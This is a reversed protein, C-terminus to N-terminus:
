PARADQAVLVDEGDLHRAVRLPADAAAAVDGADELVGVGDVSRPVGTAQPSGHEHVVGPRGLEISQADQATVGVLDTGVEPQIGAEVAVRRPRDAHARGRRSHEDALGLVRDGGAVVLDLPRQVDIPRSSHHGRASPSWGSVFMSTSSSTSPSTLSRRDRRVPRRSTAQFSQTQEILPSRSNRLAALMTGVRGPGRRRSARPLQAAVDLQRDLRAQVGHAHLGVDGMGLQVAGGVLQAHEHQLVERQLPTVGVLDAALGDPLDALRDVGSPCWGDITCHHACSSGTASAGCISCSLVPRHSRRSTELCSGVQFLDTSSRQSFRANSCASGVRGATAWLPTVGNRGRSSPVSAWRHTPQCRPSKCSRPSRARMIGRRTRKTLSNPAWDTGSEAAAYM